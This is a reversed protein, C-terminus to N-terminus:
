LSTTFIHLLFAPLLSFTETGIDEAYNSYPRTSCAGYPMAPLVPVKRRSECFSSHTLLAGCMYCFGNQYVPVFCFCFSYFLIGGFPEKKCPNDKFALHLPRVADPKPHKGSQAVFFTKRIAVRRSCSPLFLLIKLVFFFYVSM